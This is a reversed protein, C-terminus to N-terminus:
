RKAREARKAALIPEAWKAARYQQNAVPATGDAAQKNEYTAVVNELSPILTSAIGCADAVDQAITAVPTGTPIVSAALEEAACGIQIDTMVKDFAACGVVAGILVVASMKMECRM